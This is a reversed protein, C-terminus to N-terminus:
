LGATSARAARWRDVIARRTSELEPPFPSDRPEPPHHRHDAIGLESAVREITGPQDVVLDEFRLVLTGIRQAAFLDRWARTEAVIERECAAIHDPDGWEVGQAPRTAVRGTFDWIGTIRSLHLSVAQAAIDERVLLIALADRFLGIKLAARRDVYHPWQVKAGWAGNPTTRRAHLARLYAHTDLPDLGWRECLPYLHGVNFYESPVGIGANVLQRCLLWSGSRPTSCIVYRRPPVRPDPAPQDFRAQDLDHEPMKEYPSSPRM